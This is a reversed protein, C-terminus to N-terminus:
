AYEFGDSGRLRWLGVGVVAIMLADRGLLAIAAVPHDLDPPGFVALTAATVAVAGATLVMLPRDRHLIAAWPTLWLLFQPSLLPATIILMTVSTLMVLAILEADNERGQEQGQRQEQGSGRGSRRRALGAALVIVGITLVRGGSVVTDNLTGIRFADAELRPQESGILSALSGPISELHWGTVGRLSTIQEVAEVGSVALWIVGFAVGLGTAAAAAGSRRVGIAAAILLAPWLKILSGVVVAVAFVTARATSVSASPKKLPALAAAAVVAALAAWLDLRLLGSPVLPLGLLLYATSARRSWFRALVAALGLDVLLSLAVLRRHSAVVNDALMLEAIVVTGPPYEVEHDVYPAGPADGIQQFRDVDWGDLETAEDTWPGFLLAAAALVRIAIATWSIWREARM